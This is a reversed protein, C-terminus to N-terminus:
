WEHPTEDVSVEIGSVIEPIAFEDLEVDVLEGQDFVYTLSLEAHYTEDCVETRTTQDFTYIQGDERDYHGNVYDPGTVTVEFSVDVDFTIQCSEDDSYIIMPTIDGIQTVTIGGEVEAEDWSSNNWVDANELSGTVKDKIVSSHKSVWDILAQHRATQHSNYLDLVADLSDVAIFRKDISCYSKLDQDESVVYLFDHSGEDLFSALSLISIADPFEAKKKGQGFPPTGNFYCSLLAEVDVNEATVVITSCDDMFKSLAQLSKARIDSEPIQSFFNAISGEDITALIRAKRQFNEISKIAADISQVLHDKVEAQVVSTSIHFLEGAKCYNKFADFTRGNFHLGAKDFYQTDIFVAKTKLVHNM